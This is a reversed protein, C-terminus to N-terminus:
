LGPEPVHCSASRFVAIVEGVDGRTEAKQSISRRVRLAHFDAGAYLDRVEPTDHNSVVVAAGRGAAASAEVALDKQDDPTFDDEAYRTFSATRSLPVYPPDCYVVDGAASGRLVQRFDLCTVRAGALLRAAARLEDVPASPGEYRGFPVNFGNPGYRCLGNYGHRNLYVFLAAGRLTGRSGNFERRLEYYRAEANNASTFLGEVERLLADPQSAVRGHLDVLDPNRDNLWLSDFETGLALAVSASGVFPEVLRRPRPLACLHPKLFPVVRRKGGAWKLYPRLGPVDGPTDRADAEPERTAGFHDLQGRM